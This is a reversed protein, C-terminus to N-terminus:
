GGVTAPHKGFTEGFSPLARHSNNRRCCDRACNQHCSSLRIAVLMLSISPSINEDFRTNTSTSDSGTPPQLM